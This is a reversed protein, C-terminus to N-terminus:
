VVSKRDLDYIAFVNAIVILLWIAWSLWIISPISAFTVYGETTARKAFPNLQHLTSKVTRRTPAPTLLTSPVASSKPLSM